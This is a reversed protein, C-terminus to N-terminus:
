FLVGEEGIGIAVAELVKALIGQVCIGEDGVHWLDGAVQGEIIM